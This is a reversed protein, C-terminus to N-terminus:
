EGESSGLVETEETDGSDTDSGDEGEDSGVDSESVLDSIADDERPVFDVDMEEEEEGEESEEAEDDSGEGIENYNEDFLAAHMEEPPVDETLKKLYWADTEVFEEWYTMPPAKIARRPRTSM